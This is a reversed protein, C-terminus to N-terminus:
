PYTQYTRYDASNNVAKGTLVLVMRTIGYSLLIIIIGIVASTLMSIAKKTQEQNGAATMYQFGAFVALGLFIIGIFGLVINIMRAVLARVDVPAGGNDAGYVRGVETLGEQQSVIGSGTQASVLGPHSLVILVLSFFSLLIVALLNKKTIRM